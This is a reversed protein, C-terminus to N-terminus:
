GEVVRVDVAKTGKEDQVKTFEVKAGPTLTHFGEMKIASYHVFFDGEENDAVIFGFGKGDNFWKVTGKITDAM